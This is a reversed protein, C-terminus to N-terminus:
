FDINELQQFMAYHKLYLIEADENYNKRNYSYWSRSSKKIYSAFHQLMHIYIGKEAPDNSSIGNCRRGYSVAECLLEKHKADLNKMYSLAMTHLIDLLEEGRQYRSLIYDFIPKKYDTYHEATYCELNNFKPWIEQATYSDIDSPTYNTPKIPNLTNSTDLTYEIMQQLTRARDQEM